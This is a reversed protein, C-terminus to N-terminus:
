PKRFNPPQGIASLQLNALKWQGQQVFVLTIRFQGPISNGRYSAKQTQRGVLIAAGNYVRVRVEELDLAENKLDGSRHRELWEQKSLLFGLPGVGVFDDALLNELFATDGRLEATGWADALRMVEQEAHERNM